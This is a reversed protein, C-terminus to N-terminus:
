NVYFIATDKLYMTKIAFLFQARVPNLAPAVFECLVWADEITDIRWCDRILYEFNIFRSRFINMATSTASKILVIGVKSPLMSEVCSSKSARGDVEPRKDYDGNRMSDGSVFIYACLFLFLGIEGNFNSGFAHGNYNLPRLSLYLCFCVFNQILIFYFNQSFASMQITTHLQTPKM